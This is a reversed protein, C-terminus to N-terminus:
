DTKERKPTQRQSVKGEEKKFGMRDVMGEADGICEGWPVNRKKGNGPPIKGRVAL